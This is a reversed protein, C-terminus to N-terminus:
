LVNTNFVLIQNDFLFIRDVILHRECKRLKIESKISKTKASHKKKIRVNKKIMKIM